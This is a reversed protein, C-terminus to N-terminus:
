SASIGAYNPVAGPEMLHTMPLVARRWHYLPSATSIVPSRPPSPLLSAKEDISLEDACQRPLQRVAGAPASPTLSMLRHIVM